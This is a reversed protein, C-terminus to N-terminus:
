DSPNGDLASDIDAIAKNFNEADEEAIDSPMVAAITLIPPLDPAPFRENEDPNAETGDADAVEFQINPGILVSHTVVTGNPELVPIDAVVSNANAPMKAVYELLEAAVAGGTILSGSAFTIRKM